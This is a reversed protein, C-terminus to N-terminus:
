IGKLYGMVYTLGKIVFLCFCFVLSLFLSLEDQTSFSIQTQEGMIKM